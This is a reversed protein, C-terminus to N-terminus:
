VRTCYVLTRGQTHSAPHRNSIITNIVSHTTGCLCVLFDVKRVGLRSPQTDTENRYVAYESSRHICAQQSVGKEQFPLARGVYTHNCWPLAPWFLLWAIGLDCRVDNPTMQVRAHTRRLHPKSGPRLRTSQGARRQSKVAVSLMCGRM